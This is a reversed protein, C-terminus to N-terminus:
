YIFDSVARSNNPRAEPRAFPGAASPDAAKPAEWRQVIDPSPERMATGPRVDYGEKDVERYREWPLFSTPQVTKLDTRSSVQPDEDLFYRTFVNPVYLEENPIMYPRGSPESIYATAVIVLETEGREFAKSRALAGIIPLDSFGPIKNVTNNFDNKMLGALMFSQGSALEITSEARRVIFGPQVQGEFMIGNSDSRESVEPRIRLSIRNGSLITPTVSLLVGYDKFEIDYGGDGDSSQFPIQGGALFSATEGSVVTLNPEALISVLEESAMADFMASATFHSVMTEPDFISGFGSNNLIPNEESGFNIGYRKGHYGAGSWKFGLQDSLKRNVEAFRVRVTVQNPTTVTLQNIVKGVRAGLTGKGMAAGSKSSQGEDGGAQSMDAAAAMQQAAPNMQLFSDLFSIINAAEQPTEVEGRVAVGDNLPVLSLNHKPYSDRLAETMAAIDYSVQIMGNWLTKGDTGMVMLSTKGPYSGFVIIKRNGVVQYSAIGPQAVFVTGIPERFSLTKGQYIHVSLSSDAEQAVPASPNVAAAAPIAGSAAFAGFTGLVLLCATNLAHHKKM